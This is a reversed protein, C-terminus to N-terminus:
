HHEQKVLPFMNESLASRERRLKAASDTLEQHDTLGVM